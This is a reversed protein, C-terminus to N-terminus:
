PRKKFLTAIQELNVLLCGAMILLASIGIVVSATGFGGMFLLFTAILPVFYVLSGLLPQDGHRIAYDWCAYSVHFGGLLGVAILGKTDPWVTEEFFVHGVLCVITSLFFIPVLFQTPYTKDRAFCCYAAWLIAASIAMVHGLEIERFGTNQYRYALLLLCGSFGILLGLIKLFNVPMKHFVGMFVILLIPWLYNLSNAEFPSTYSFATYILIIYGCMGVGVFLYDSVPRKFHAIIKDGKALHFVTLVVFGLFWSITALELPPLQGAVALLLPTSSWMLIAAVGFWNPNM